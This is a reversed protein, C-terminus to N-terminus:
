LTITERMLKGNENFYIYKKELDNKEVKLRYQIIDGPYYILKADTVTRDAYKSKKFGDKAADPLKNYDIDKITSKWIGNNNYTANMNEGNLEFHVSANIVDNSWEIKEAKPYQKSFNDKATQPVKTVQANTQTTIFALVLFLATRIFKM